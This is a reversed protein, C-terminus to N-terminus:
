ISSIIMTLFITLSTFLFIKAILLNKEAKKINEKAQEINQRAQELETKMTTCKIRQKNPM